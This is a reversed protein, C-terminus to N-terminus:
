EIGIVKAQSGIATAVKKALEYNDFLGVSYGDDSKTIEKDPALTKIISRNEDTLDKFIINFNEGLPQFDIINGNKDIENEDKWHSISVKMGLRRLKISDKKAEEITGYSGAFYSFKGKAEERLKIPSIKRFIYYSTQKKIYTGLKIKFVEGVTPLVIEEIPNDKNYINSKNITIPEYNIFVWDPLSLTEFDYKESNINKMEASISDKALTLGKADALILEYENLLLKGRIYSALEPDIVKARIESIESRENRSKNGLSEIQDYMSMKDLLINYADIKTQFLRTWISGIKSDLTIIIDNDRDFIAKISDAKIKTKASRYDEVNRKHKKYTNTLKSALDAIQLELSKTNAIIQYEKEKINTKFYSNLIFNRENSNSSLSSEPTNVNNMNELLFDKEIIAKKSSIEGLKGRINFLRTELEIIENSIKDRKNIDISSIAKRKETIAKNLSDQETTYLKVQKLLSVYTTDRNLNQMHLTQGDAKFYTSLTLMLIIIASNLKIKTRQAM